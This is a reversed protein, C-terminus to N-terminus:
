DALFYLLDWLPLADERVNEWDVLVFEQGGAVVNWTGLDNHQLVARLPPLEDVLDTRVGLERWSPVVEARLRNREAATAEPAGRTLRGLELIWEGIRDIL